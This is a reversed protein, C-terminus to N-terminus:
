RIESDESRSFDGFRGGGAFPGIWMSYLIRFCTTADAALVSTLPSNWLPCVAAGRRMVSWLSLKVWDGVEILVSLEAALPMTVAVTRCFTGLCHVYLKIPHLVPYFLFVKDKKPFWSALLHPIVERFM